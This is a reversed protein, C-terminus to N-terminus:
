SAVAWRAEKDVRVFNKENRKFRKEQKKAGREIYADIAADDAAGACRDCDQYLMFFAEEAIESPTCMVKQEHGCHCPVTYEVAEEAVADAVVVNNLQTTM